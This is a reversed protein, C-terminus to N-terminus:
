RIKYDDIIKLGSASRCFAAPRSRGEREKKREKKREKGVRMKSEYYEFVEERRARNPSGM